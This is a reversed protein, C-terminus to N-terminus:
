GDKPTEKEPVPSLGPLPQDRPPAPLPMPPLLPGGPKGDNARPAQPPTVQPYPTPTPTGPAGPVPAIVRPQLDEAQATTFSALCLLLISTLRM